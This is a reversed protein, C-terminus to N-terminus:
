VAVAALQRTFSYVSAAEAVCAPLRNWSPITWVSFSHQFETTKSQIHQQKWCHNARTRSDAPLFGLDEPPIGVHGNLVKFMMTPSSAKRRNELPDLRLESLMTTVSARTHYDRKIWRAARRQPRELSDKHKILHPDWIAASYELTSRVLSVYSMRKLTHPCGKLNRRLFGLRSNAKAAITNVHEEWGLSESITVGLYTCASVQDLITNDLKKSLPLDQSLWQIASKPMLTCVGSYAGASLPM